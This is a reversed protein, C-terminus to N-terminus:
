RYVRERGDGAGVWLGSNDEKGDKDRRRQRHAQGEKQRGRKTKTRVFGLRKTQGSATYPRCLWAPAHHPAARVRAARCGLAAGARADRRPVELTPSGRRFRTSVRM